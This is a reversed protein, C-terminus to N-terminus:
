FYKNLLAEKLKQLTLNEFDNLQITGLLPGIQSGLDVIDNKDLSVEYSYAIKPNVRQRSNTTGTSNSILFENFKHSNVIAFIVAQENLDQGSISLFEPSAVSIHNKFKHLSPAWVRKTKPNLKSVLVAYPKVIKKNSKITSLDDLTPQTSADYNPISFHWM